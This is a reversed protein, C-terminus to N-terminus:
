QAPIDQGAMKQLVPKPDFLDVHSPAGGQWLCVVLKAKPAFHPLGPLGGMSSGGAAALAEQQILAALAM